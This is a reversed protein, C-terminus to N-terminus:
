IEFFKRVNGPLADLMIAETPSEPIYVVPEKQEDELVQPIHTKLEARVAHKQKDIFEFTVIYVPQNNIKTSTATKSVVKGSTLLGHKLIKLYRNARKFHVILFSIGIVPFILMLLLVWIQFLSSRMGSLYSITPDSLKYYVTREDGQSIGMDTEYSVGEYENKNTDTFRYKYRYIKQKNESSNTASVEYIVATSKELSSESNFTSSYNGERTMRFAFSGALTFVFGFLFYISIFSVSLKISLPLQRPELTDIITNSVSRNM